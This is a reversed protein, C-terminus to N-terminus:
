SLEIWNERLIVLFHQLPGYNCSHCLLSMYLIWIDVLIFLIDAETYSHIHFTNKSCKIQILKSMHLLTVYIM